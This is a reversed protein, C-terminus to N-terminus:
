RLGQRIEAGNVGIDLVWRLLVAGMLLQVADVWAPASLHDGVFSLVVCVVVSLSLLHKSEVLGVVVFVEPVAKLVIFVWSPVSLLNDAFTVAVAALMAYPLYRGKEGLDRHQSNM